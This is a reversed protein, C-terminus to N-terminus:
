DFHLKELIEEKLNKAIESIKEEVDEIEEKLFELLKPHHPKKTFKDLFATHKEEPLLSLVEELLRADFTQRVTRLFELKEEKDLGYEDIKIEIEEIQILYDWFIKAM